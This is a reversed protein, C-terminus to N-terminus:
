EILKDELDDIFKVFAETMNINLRESLILLWWVCEAMKNKLDDDLNDGYVWRGEKSMVLRALMGVDSTFALMDEETSWKVNHNAKELEHYFKRIRVSRESAASFDIVNNLKTLDKKNM